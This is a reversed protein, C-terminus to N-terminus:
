AISIASAQTESVTQNVRSAERLIQDARGVEALDTAVGDLM